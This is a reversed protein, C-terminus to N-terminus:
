FIFVNIFWFRCNSNPIPVVVRQGELEFRDRRNLGGSHHNRWIRRATSRARMGVEAKGPRGDGACVARAAALRCQVPSPDM